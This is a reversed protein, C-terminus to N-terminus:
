RLFSRVRSILIDAGPGSIDCLAKAIDDIPSCPAQGLKIGYREKLALILAEAAYDGFISAAQRLARELEKCYSADGPDGQASL